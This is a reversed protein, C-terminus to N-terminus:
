SNNSAACLVAGVSPDEGTEVFDDLDVIELTSQIVSLLQYKAPKGM